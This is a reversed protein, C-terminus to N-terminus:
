MYMLRGHEIYRVDVHMRTPLPLQMVVFVHFYSVFNKCCLSAGVLSTFPTPQLQWYCYSYVAAVFKRQYSYNTAVARETVVQRYFVGSASPSQSPDRKNTLWVNRDLRPGNNHRPCTLHPRPFSVHAPCVDPPPNDRSPLFYISFSSPPPLYKSDECVLRERRTAKSM